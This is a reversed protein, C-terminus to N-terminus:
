KTQVPIVDVEYDDKLLKRIRIEASQGPQVIGSRTSQALQSVLKEEIVNKLSRVGYAANYAKAFTSVVEKTWSLKINHRSLGIQAWKQLVM